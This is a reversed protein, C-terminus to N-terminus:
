PEVELVDKLASRARNLRSKVTGAPIKLIAATEEVSYGECHHLYIVSRMKTPLSRLADLAALADESPAETEPLIADSHLTVRRYWSKRNCDTAENMAVRILWAKIHEGDAFNIRCLLLKMFVNQFCDEADAQNRCYLLLIRKVTDGYTDVARDFEQETVIM